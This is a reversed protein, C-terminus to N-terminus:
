DDRCHFVFLSQPSSMTYFSFEYSKSASLVHPDHSFIGGLTRTQVAPHVSNGTVLIHLSLPLKQESSCNRDSSQELFVTNYHISIQFLVMHLLLKYWIKIDSALDVFMADGLTKM